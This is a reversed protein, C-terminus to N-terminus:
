PRDPLSRSWWQRIAYPEAFSTSVCKRRRAPNPAISTLRVSDTRWSNSSTRAMVQRSRWGFGQSRHNYPRRGAPGDPGERDSCRWLSTQCREPGTDGVRLQSTKTFGELRQTKTSAVNHRQSGAEGEAIGHCTLEADILTIQPCFAITRHFRRHTQRDTHDTPQRRHHSAGIWCGADLM